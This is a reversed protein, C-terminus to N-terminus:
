TAPLEGDHLPRAYVVVRGERTVRVKEVVGPVDARIVDGVSPVDEVMCVTALGGMHVVGRRGRFAHRREGDERDVLETVLGWAARRRARARASARLDFPSGM